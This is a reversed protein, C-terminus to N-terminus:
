AGTVSSGRRSFISSTPMGSNIWPSDVSGAISMKSRSFAKMSSTSAGGDIAKGLELDHELVDGSSVRHLVDLDGTRVDRRRDGRVVQEHVAVRKEHTADARVVVAQRNQFALLVALRQDLRPTPCGWTKGRVSLAGCARRALSVAQPQAPM